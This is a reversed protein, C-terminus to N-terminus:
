KDNGYYKDYLKDGKQLFDREHDNLYQDNDIRGTKKCKRYILKQKCEKCLEILVEGTNTIIKTNHLHTM